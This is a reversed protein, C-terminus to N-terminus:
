HKAQTTDRRQTTDSKRRMTDRKQPVTDSKRTTVSASSEDSIIGPKQTAFLSVVSICCAITSVFFIKKM